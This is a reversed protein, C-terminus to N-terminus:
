YYIYKESPNFLSDYSLTVRALPPISRGMLSALIPRFQANLQAIVGSFDQIAYNGSAYFLANYYM